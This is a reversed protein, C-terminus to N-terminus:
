HKKNPFSFDKDEMRSINIGQAKCLAIVMDTCEARTMEGGFLQLTFPIGINRLDFAHTEGNKMAEWARQPVGIMMHTADPTFGVMFVTQKDKDVAM